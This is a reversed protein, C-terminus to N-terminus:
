LADRLEVVDAWFRKPINQNQLKPNRRAEIAVIVFVIVTTTTAITVIRQVAHRGQPERWSWEHAFLPDNEPCEM